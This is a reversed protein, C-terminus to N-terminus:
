HFGNVGGWISDEDTEKETAIGDESIVPPRDGTLKESDPTYTPKDVQHEQISTYDPMAVGMGLRDYLYAMERQQMGIREDFKEPSWLELMKKTNLTKLRDKNANVKALRREARIALEVERRTRGEFPRTDRTIAAIWHGRYYVYVVNALWPEIRVEVEERPKTTKFEDHWYYRNDAWVGRQRDIKHNMKKTHPCTMLMINQDFKILVHERQGTELMRMAEYDRPTCGLTPHIRNERIDFLYEEFAGHLATLTWIANPFPNVSKTVMRANKMIRTNGQMQAIVETETAGMSREVPSGGRPRGKSRYRLDIGFIRCFKALEKSRFEKGGDVVLIKPLRNHRRVYDRLVMLVVKGSPPDYSLYFARTQTTNGDVAITFFPKDLETGEPGATALNLTTHDIYCVEHPRVGNIPFVYDLFLPVSEVHYDKRRGERDKISIGTKARITFTPYSMPDVGREECIAQYKYFTAIITRCEPTNFYKHITEEALTEVEDPLRPCRNGKDKNRDTLAIIKDIMPMDSSIREKWRQITRTCVSDSTGINIINLRNNGTELQNCSLDALSKVSSGQPTLDNSLEIGSSAYLTVIDELPLSTKIGELDKLLVNGGGVLIVEFEKGDFHLKTGAALRAMGPLPLPPTRDSNLLHHARAIASDRHIFLDASVDLRANYLDVVVSRKLVAKFINDASYHHDHLLELFSISGREALLKILNCEIDEPLHPCNPLQYQELFRVNLVFTRPLEFASHLEYQLGIKSFNEEAAKFHWRGNEDKSFQSGETSLRLLRSEERWEHVFFGNRRILLFDPVHQIRSIATGDNNILILDRKFPQPWYEFCDIDDEYSTAAPSEVTRSGLEHHRDGMKPSFQSTIINGLYSNQKKVPSNARAYRVLKRGEEPLEFEAFLREVEVEILM